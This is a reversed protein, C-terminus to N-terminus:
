ADQRKFLWEKCCTECNTDKCNKNTCWQRTALLKAIKELEGKQLKAKNTRGQQKRALSVKYQQAYKRVAYVPVNLMQSIKNATKDKNLLLFEESVEWKKPRGGHGNNITPAFILKHKKAYKCLASDKIKYLEMVEKRTKGEIDEQTLTINTRRRRCIYQLLDYEKIIKNITPTSKNLKKCLEEVTLNPHQIIYQQIVNDKSEFNIGMARKYKLVTSAHVGYKKAMVKGDGIYWEKKRSIAKKVKDLVIQLNRM